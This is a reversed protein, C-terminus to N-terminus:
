KDAQVLPSLLKRLIMRARFVRVKALSLDIGVISAIESYSHGEIDRLLLAERLAVPLQAISKEIGQQLFVDTQQFEPAAHMLEDFSEHKSRQARIHNLCVRRSITFVWSRINNTNLTQRHEYVRIFTEQFADAANEENGLM